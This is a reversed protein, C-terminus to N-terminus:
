LTPKSLWLLGSTLSGLVLSHRTLGPHDRRARLRNKRSGLPVTHLESAIRPARNIALAPAAPHPVPVCGPWPAGVILSSCAAPQSDNRAMAAPSSSRPM